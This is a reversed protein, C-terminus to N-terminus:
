RFWEDPKIDAILEFGGKGDPKIVFTVGMPEPYVGTAADFPDDHGVFVTNYGPAPLQTFLPRVRNRMATIQAETYEEAPEFNLASLKVYRGFALDATQWSRCYESSYVSGVPIKHVVFAAGIDRAEQWGTEGLMRQTSCDGMRASIQDAYDKETAAHRIFIIHGGGRLANLLAEGSLKDKFPPTPAEASAGTVLLMTAAIAAVGGVIRQRTVRSSRKNTGRMMGAGMFIGHM